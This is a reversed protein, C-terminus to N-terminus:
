WWGGGSGGCGGGGGGGGCGGGGGGGGGGGARRKKGKNAVCAFIDMSIIPISMIIMSLLLLGSLSGLLVGADALVGLARAM